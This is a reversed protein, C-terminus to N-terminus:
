NLDVPPTLTPAGERPRPGDGLETVCFDEAEARLRGGIGPTTTAYAGLGLQVELGPPATM